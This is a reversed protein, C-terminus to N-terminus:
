FMMLLILYYNIIVLSVIAHIKRGRHKHGKTPLPWPHLLLVQIVNQLIGHKRLNSFWEDM